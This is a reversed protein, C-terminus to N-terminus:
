RRRRLLALGSFALLGLTSPEPVAATTHLVANYNDIGTIETASSHFDAPTNFITTFGFVINSGTNSFNPNSALDLSFQGNASTVQGFDTAVLTTGVHQWAASVNDFEPGAYIHGNQELALNAFAALGAGGQHSLDFSFTVSTIAGQSSPTYTFAPNNFFAATGSPGPNATITLQYYSGPNGGSPQQSAGVTGGGGAFNIIAPWDGPNFTGDSFTTDASAAQSLLGCAAIGLILCRSKGGITEGLNGM